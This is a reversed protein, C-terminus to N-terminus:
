MIPDSTDNKLSSSIIIDDGKSEVKVAFKTKSSFLFREKMSFMLFKEMFSGVTMNLKYHMTWKSSHIPSKENFLIFILKPTEMNENEFNFQSYLKEQINSFSFVISPTTLYDSYIRIYIENQDILSSNIMISYTIKIFIVLSIYLCKIFIM